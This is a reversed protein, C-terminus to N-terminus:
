MEPHWIEDVKTSDTAVREGAENTEYSKVAGLHYWKGDKMEYDFNITSGVIGVNKPHILYIDEVYSGDSMRWAGSGLGVVDGGNEENNYQVWIFRSPTLLKIYGVFEPYTNYTSDNYGRFQDRHWTKLMEPDKNSGAIRVWKEEIRVSDVVVNDGTEPDLETVMSYGTHYWIGDEFRAEFEIEQGLVGSGIPHYFDIDEIYKGDEIMYTGGGSGVLVNEKKDYSVWTFHTPTIHKEYIMEDSRTQWETSGNEHDIFEIQKWSGTLDIDEAPAEKETSKGGCGYIFLGFITLIILIQPFRYM